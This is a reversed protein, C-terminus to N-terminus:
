LDLLKKVHLHVIIGCESGILVDIKDVLGLKDIVSTILGLHDLVQSSIHEETPM